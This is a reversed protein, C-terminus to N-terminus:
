LFEGTSTYRSRQTEAPSESATLSSIQRFSSQKTSLMRRVTPLFGTPIRRPKNASSNLEFTLTWPYVGTASPSTPRGREADPDREVNGVLLALCVTSVSLNRTRVWFTPLPKRDSETLSHSLTSLQLSRYHPHQDQPSPLSPLTLHIPESGFPWKNIRLFVKM